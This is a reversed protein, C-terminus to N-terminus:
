RRLEFGPMRVAAEVAEIREVSRSRLSCCSPAALLPRRCTCRYRYIRRVHGRSPASCGGSSRGAVRALAEEVVGVLPQANQALYREPFEIGGSVRDQIRVAVGIGAEEGLDGGIRWESELRQILIPEHQVHRLCPMLEPRALDAAVAAAAVRM